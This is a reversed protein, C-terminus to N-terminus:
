AGLYALLPTITIPSLLTTTFVATSVFSPDVDYETALVTLIVATPMASELIGAQFAPGQLRFALNLALAFLPAAVLRLVSTVTLALPHGNWGANQLQIGMLVILVPIAAGALLSVSREVPLPLQWGLSNIILALGVAYVAPVKFLGLCAKKLSTSGLSAVVVGVTYTLIATTVFYLSAHALAPEGFALLNLSLGYNGANGFM